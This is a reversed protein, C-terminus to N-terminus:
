TSEVDKQQLWHWYLPWQGNTLQYLGNGKPTVNGVQTAQGWILWPLFPQWNDAHYVATGTFGSFPTKGGRRSSSSWLEHWRTHSEVLRVKDALESYQKVEDPDRREGGAFHRNLDDLRYLLRRFFVGFDPTKFQQKHETLRTPSLFHVTLLGQAPLLQTQIFHHVATDDVVLQPMQVLTQGPQLLPQTQGRLPDIATIQNVTFRGNGQRRGSGIGTTKGAEMVALVFYPLFQRGSGFLTLGFTFTEGPQLQRAPRYPPAIAYARTVSGPDLNAAFLWCAPCVAAHEPTPDGRRQTEPCVARSMVNALAGRLNSGAYLGGLQLPTSATCDFRLHILKLQM